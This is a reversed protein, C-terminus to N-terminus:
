MLKPLSFCNKLLFLADHSDITKLRKMMLALDELKKSLVGDTAEDLIPAGLLTLSEDELVKINPALVRFSQTM